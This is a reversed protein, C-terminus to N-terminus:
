VIKVEDEKEVNFIHKKPLNMALPDNFLRPISRGVTTGVVTPGMPGNPHYGDLVDRSWGNFRMFSAQQQLLDAGNPIHAVADILQTTVIGLAKDGTKTIGLENYLETLETEASQRGTPNMYNRQKLYTAKRFADMQKKFMEPDGNVIKSLEDVVGNVSDSTERLVMTADESNLILLDRIRTVHNKIAPPYWNGAVATVQNKMDDIDWDLLRSVIFQSCRDDLLFKVDKVTTYDSLEKPRADGDRDLGIADYGDRDYGDRDFGNEDYGENNYGDCDYGPVKPLGTNDCIEPGDPGSGGGGGGGGCNLNATLITAAVVIVLGVKVVNGVTKLGAEFFNGITKICVASFNLEKIKKLKKEKM